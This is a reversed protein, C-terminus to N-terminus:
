CRSNILTLDSSFVRFYKFVMEDEYPVEWCYTNVIGCAPDSGLVNPRAHPRKVKFRMYRYRSRVCSLLWMSPHFPRRTNRPKWYRDLMSWKMFRFVEIKIWFHTFTIQASNFCVKFFSLFISLTSKQEVCKKM